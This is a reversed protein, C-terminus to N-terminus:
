EKVPGLTDGKCFGRTLFVPFALHSCVSSSPLVFGRSLYGKANINHKVRELHETPKDKKFSHANHRSGPLRGETFRQGQM